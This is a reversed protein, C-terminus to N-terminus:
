LIFDVRNGQSLISALGIIIMIIIIIIIPIMDQDDVMM